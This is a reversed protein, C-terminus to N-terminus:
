PAKWWIDYVVPSDLVLLAVLPLDLNVSKGSYTGGVVSTVPGPFRLTVGIRAKKIEEAVASGYMGGVLDVYKAQTLNEGTAIPAMLASLYDTVDQSFLTLTAPGNTRDLTLRLHGGSNTSTYQIFQVFIAKGDAANTRANLFDTVSRISLTGALTRPKPNSLSVAGVGPASQLARAFGSAEILPGDSSTQSLNAILVATQPELTMSLSVEAKGDSLLNGDIKASCATLSFLIFTSLLPLWKMYYLM